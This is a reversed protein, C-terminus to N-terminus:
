AINSLWELYWDKLIDKLFVLWSFEYLILALLSLLIFVWKVNLVHGLGQFAEYLCLISCFIEMCDNFIMMMTLSMFLCFISTFVFPFSSEAKKKTAISFSFTFIAKSHPPAVIEQSNSNTNTTPLLTSPIMFINWEFCSLPKKHSLHFAHHIYIKRM